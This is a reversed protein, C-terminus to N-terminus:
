GADTPGGLERGIAAIFTAARAAKDMLEAANM